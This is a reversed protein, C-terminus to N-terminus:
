LTSYIGIHLANWLMTGAAAFDRQRHLITKPCIGPVRACNNHQIFHAVNFSDPRFLQSHRHSESRGTLPQIESTTPMTTQRQNLLPIPIKQFHLHGM